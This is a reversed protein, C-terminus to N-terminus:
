ATGSGSLTDSNAAPERANNHATLFLFIYFTIHMTAPLADTAQRRHHDQDEAQCYRLVGGPRRQAHQHMGLHPKSERRCDLRMEVRSRSNRRRGELNSADNEAYTVTQRNNDIVARQEKFDGAIFYSTLVISVILIAPYTILLMVQATKMFYYNNTWTFLLYLATGAVIGPLPGMLSVICSKLATEKKTKGSVAAGIM